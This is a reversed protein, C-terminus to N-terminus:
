HIPFSIDQIPFMDWNSEVAGGNGEQLGDARLKVAPVQHLRREDCHSRYLTGQEGTGRIHGVVTDKEKGAFGDRGRSVQNERKGGVGDTGM